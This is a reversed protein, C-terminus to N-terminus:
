KTKKNNGSNQKQEKIVQIPRKGKHIPQQEEVTEALKKHDIKISHIIAAATEKWQDKKNGDTSFNFIYVRNTKGEKDKANGIITYALYTYKKTGELESTFEFLIFDKGNIKEVGEHLFVVNNYLDLITSKYFKQLIDFNSGGWPSKSVNLGFDVTRDLSTWMALPKKTSPYKQAIDDDSMVVFDKPLSVTVGEAIKKSTLKPGSAAVFLLLSLVILTLKKM